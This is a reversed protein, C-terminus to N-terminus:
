NWVTPLFVHVKQNVIVVPTFRCLFLECVITPSTFTIDGIENDTRREDTHKVTEATDNYTFLEDTHEVTESSLPPFEMSDSIDLFLINDQLIQSLYYLTILFGHALALFHNFQHGYFAYLIKRMKLM